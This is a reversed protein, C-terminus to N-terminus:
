QNTLPLVSTDDCRRERQGLVSDRESASGEWRLDDFMVMRLAIKPLTGDAQRDWSLPLERREGPAIRGHGPPSELATCFDSTLGGEFRNDHPAYRGFSLAEIPVNRLNEVVAYLKRSVAAKSTIGVSTVEGPRQLSRTMPRDLVALRDQAEARRHELVARIWRPPRSVDNSVLSKLNLAFTSLGTEARRVLHAKIFTRVDEDRGVPLETLAGIWYHLDDAEERRRKAFAAATDAEGEYHGDAFVALRVVANSEASSNNIPITLVRRARPAVPGGDLADPRATHDSTHIISPTASGPRGVGIEWAVLPSERLNELTVSLAGEDKEVLAFRVSTIRPDQALSIAPGLLVLALVLGVRFRHTDTM